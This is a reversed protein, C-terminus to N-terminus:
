QLQNAENMKQIITSAQQLCADADASDGIERYLHSLNVLAPVQAGRSGEEPSELAKKFYQIAATSNGQKREYIGVAINVDPSSPKLALARFLHPAAEATRGRNALETGVRYEATFNDNSVKLAQSWLTLEDKWFGVQRHAVVALALLGITSLVPLLAAFRPWQEAWEAMGWCTMLFLGLFSFYAYRDAMAQDGLQVIGINLFLVLLFWLWGVTLYRRRWGAAVLATIVFLVAFAGLVQWTRLSTGPHPYFPALDSPWVAKRMYRVYAVIANAVRNSMPHVWSKPPHLVGQNKVTALMDLVCLLLLPIKEKLLASLDARPYGIQSALGASAEPIAGFMRRLPWYDWLLLLFPMIVALPKCMLALLFLGVVLSWRPTSQPERAYWRYAALTLLCFLTCLVTKREAIWGVAEVNIPHIAFLAAVMFSRWTYGTARRLLWFLILVNLAHFVVNMDHPGAPSLGFFQYDLAHSLWTVPHWYSRETTLAWHVTQWDLARQIHPNDTIYVGDDPYYFPHHHVPYYVAFTAVLLLLGLCFAIWSSDPGRSRPSAAGTASSESGSTM